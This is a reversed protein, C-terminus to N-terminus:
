ALFLRANDVTKVDEDQRENRFKFTVMVPRHDSAYGRFVKQGVTQFQGPKGQRIWVYDIWGSGKRTTVDGMGLIEWNSRTEVSRFLTVPMGPGGGRKAVREWHYNFDGITFVPGFRSHIRVMDILNRMSENYQTIHDPYARDYVGQRVAKTDLHTNIVTFVNGGERDRFRVWTAWRSPRGGRTIVLLRVGKDLIDFRDKRWMIPNDKASLSGAPIGEPTAPRYVDWGKLSEYVGNRRPSEAEQLGLIDVKTKDIKRLDKRIRIPGLGRFQNYTCISVWSYRRYPDKPHEKDEDKDKDKKPDDEDKEDKPDPIDEVEEPAELPPDEAALDDEYYEPYEFDAGDGYPPDTVEDLVVPQTEGVTLDEVLGAQVLADLIQQLVPDITQRNGYIQVPEVIGVPVSLVWFGLRRQIVWREGERPFGSGKPLLTALVEIETGFDDLVMVKGSTVDIEGTITVVM